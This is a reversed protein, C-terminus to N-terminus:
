KHTGSTLAGGFSGGGHDDVVGVLDSGSGGGSGGSGGGCNGLCQARGRQLDGAVSLFCGVTVSVVVVAM